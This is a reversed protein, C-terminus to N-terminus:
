EGDDGYDTSENPELTILKEKEDPTLLPIREMIQKRLEQIQDYPTVTNLILINIQPKDDLIGVVKCILEYVRAFSKNDPDRLVKEATGTGINFLWRVQHKSRKFMESREKQIAQNFGPLRMWKYITTRDVGCLEAVKVKSKGELLYGIAKSQPETFTSEQQEMVM